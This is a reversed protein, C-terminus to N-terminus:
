KKVAIGIWAIMKIGVGNEHEYYGPSSSIEKRIVEPLRKVEEENYDKFFMDKFLMLNEVLEDLSATQMVGEVLKIDVKADFGGEDLM